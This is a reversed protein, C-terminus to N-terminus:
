PRRGCKATAGKELRHGLKSLMASLRERERDIRRIAQRAGRAGSYGLAEAIADATYNFRYRALWATVSRAFPDGRGGRVWRSADASFERAVGAVLEELPPPPPPVTDAAPRIGLATSLMVDVTRYSDLGDFGWVRPRRRLPKGYEDYGRRREPDWFCHVPLVDAPRLSLHAITEFCGVTWPRRNTGVPPVLLRDKHLAPVQTKESSFADYIYLLIAGPFGGIVANLRIVRGFGYPQGKIRYAFIDGVELEKYSRRLIQMNM